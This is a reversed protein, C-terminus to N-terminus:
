ADTGLLFYSIREQWAHLGTMCLIGAWVLGQVLQEPLIEQNASGEISAKLVWAIQLPM